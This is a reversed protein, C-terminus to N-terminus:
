LKKTATKVSRRSLGKWSYTVMLTEAESIVASVNMQDGFLFLFCTGSGHAQGDLADHCPHCSM